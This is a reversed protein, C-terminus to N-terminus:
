YKKVEKYRFCYNRHDNIIGVAQLFSYIITTGLFKFGRKKMEKSIEDSLSSNSKIEKLFKNKSLIPKNHVFRWIYNSFSGFEKQIELFKQANNIASEIKLKNRIIGEDKLLRNFEKKGYSAIKRYDFKDFAKAFNKRKKLITSWSLGAQFMELVLFEFLKKDDRCPVGWEKDHYEEMEESINAWECRKLM